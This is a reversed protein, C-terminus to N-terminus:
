SSYLRTGATRSASSTFLSLKCIKVDESAIKCVTRFVSGFANKKEFFLQKDYMISVQATIITCASQLIIM